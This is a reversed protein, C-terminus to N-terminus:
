KLFINCLSFIVIIRVLLHRLHSDEAIKLNIEEFRSDDTAPLSGLVKFDENRDLTEFVEHNQQQLVKAQNKLILDIKDDLRQVKESIDAMWALFKGNMLTQGTFIHPFFYNGKFNGNCVQKNFSHPNLSFLFIVIFIINIQFLFYKFSFIEFPIKKKCVNRKM